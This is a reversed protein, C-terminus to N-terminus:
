MRMRASSPTSTLPTSIFIQCYFIGADSDDRWQQCKQRHYAKSDNPRRTVPSMEGWTKRRMGNLKKKEKKSLKEYPIFKKM